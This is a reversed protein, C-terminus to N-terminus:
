LEGIKMLKAEIDDILEQQRDLEESNASEEMALVPKIRVIDLEEYERTEDASLGVEISKKLLEDFREARVSKIDNYTQIHRLMRKSFAPRKQRNSLDAKGIVFEISGLLPDVSSPDSTLIYAPVKLDFARIAEILETGLYLTKGTHTLKEDIIYAAIGEYNHLESIMEPTTRKPELTLMEFDKGYIRKLPGSYTDRAEAEDDIYIIKLKKM